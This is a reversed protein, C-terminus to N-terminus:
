ATSTESHAFALPTSKDIVDPGFIPPPTTLMIESVDMARLATRSNLTAFFTNSYLKTTGLYWAVWIYRNKMTVFTILVLIGTVSPYQRTIVGTQLTWKMIKDVLAITRKNETLERQKWLAHTLAIALIIDNSSSVAWVSNLLWSWQTEWGVTSKMHIAFVFLFICGLLRLFSLTGCFCSIFLAHSFRYTRSAFFGQVCAVIIGSFVLAVAMSNPALLLREPHGYDSVSVTYISHGISIVHGMELIRRSHFESRPLFITFTPVQWISAVLIKLKLSDSPFRGHYMYAQTTEIGFLACSVLVGIELAGITGNTDFPQLPAM